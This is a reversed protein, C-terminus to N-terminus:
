LIKNRISIKKNEFLRRQVNSQKKSIYKKSFRKAELLFMFNEFIDDEINIGYERLPKLKSEMFEKSYINQNIFSIEIITNMIDQKIASKHVGSSYPTSLISIINKCHNELEYSSSSHSM